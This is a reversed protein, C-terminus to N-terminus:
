CICDPTICDYESSSRRINSGKLIAQHKPSDITFGQNRFLEDAYPKYCSLISIAINKLQHGMAISPIFPLRKRNDDNKLSAFILRYFTPMFEQDASIVHHGNSFDPITNALRYLLQRACERDKSSLGKVVDTVLTTNTIGKKRGGGDDVGRTFDAVVEDLYQHPDDVSEHIRDQIKDQLSITPELDSENECVVLALDQTYKDLIHETGSTDTFKLVRIEGDGIGIIKGTQVKGCLHKFSVHKGIPFYDISELVTDDIPKRQLNHSNRTMSSEMDLYLHLFGEFLAYVNQITVGRAAVIDGDKSPLM